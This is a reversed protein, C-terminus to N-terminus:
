SIFKLVLLVISSIVILKVDFSFGIEKRLFDSQRYSNIDQVYEKKGKNIVYGGKRKKKMTFVM